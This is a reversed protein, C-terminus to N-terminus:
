PQFDPIYTTIFVDKLKLEYIIINQYILKICLLEIIEINM